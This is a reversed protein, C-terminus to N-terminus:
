KTKTLLKIAGILAGTVAAGIVSKTVSPGKTQKDILKELKNEM